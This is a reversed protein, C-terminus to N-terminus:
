RSFELVMGAAEFAHHLLIGPKWTGWRGARIINPHCDCNTNLVKLGERAFGVPREPYETAQVGFLASARSWKNHSLGNYIMANSNRGWAWDSPIEGDVYWMPRSPFDHGGECLAWAPATNITVDHTDALRGARTSNIEVESIRDSYLEWLTEYAPKLAWAPIQGPSFKTWSTRVDPRGYLKRSYVEATGVKIMDVMDDPQETTIEPISRHLFVSGPIPSPKVEKSYIVPNMGLLSAAHACLLGAPGCGIVAVETSM